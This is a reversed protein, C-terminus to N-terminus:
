VVVREAFKSTRKCAHHSRQLVAVRRVQERHRTICWKERRIQRRSQCSCQHGVISVDGYGACKFRGGRSVNKARLWNEAQHVYVQQFAQKVVCLGAASFDAAPHGQVAHRKNWEILRVVYLISKEVCVRQRIQIM